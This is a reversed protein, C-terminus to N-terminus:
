LRESESGGEGREMSDYASQSLRTRSRSIIEVILALTLLSLSSPFLYWSSSLVSKLSEWFSASIIADCACSDTFNAM